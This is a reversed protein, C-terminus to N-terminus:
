KKKRVKEFHTKVDDIFYCIDDYRDKTIEVSMIIFEKLIIYVMYISILIFWFLLLAVFIKILFAIM